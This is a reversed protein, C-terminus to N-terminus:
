VTKRPFACAGGPLRRAFGAPVPGSPPRAGMASPKRIRPNNIIIITIHAICQSIQNSDANKVISIVKIFHTIIVFIFMWFLRPYANGSEVIEDTVLRGYDAPGIKFLALNHVGM